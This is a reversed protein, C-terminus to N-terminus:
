TRIAYIRLLSSREFATRTKRLAKSAYLACSPLHYYVQHQIFFSRCM